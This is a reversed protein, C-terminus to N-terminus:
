GREVPTVYITRRAGSRFLVVELSVAIADETLRRHLDDVTGRVLNPRTGHRELKQAAHEDTRGILPDAEAPPSPHPSASASM